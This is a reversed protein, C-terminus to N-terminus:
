ISLNTFCRPSPTRQRLIHELGRTRRADVHSRGRAGVCGLRVKELRSQFADAAPLSTLTGAQPGGKPMQQRLLTTLTEGAGVELYLEYGNGLLTAAAASFHVPVRCHQAWYEPSTAEAATLALGSVTSVVEIEPRHLTMQALLQRLPEIVPEIMSSHFAHSTRLARSVIKQKELQAALADIDAAPGSVVTLSPSNIAAISIAPPLLNQLQEAPMRVALMSGPPMEQM